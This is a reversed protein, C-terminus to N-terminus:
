ASFSDSVINNGKQNAIRALLIELVFDHIPQVNLQDPIVADYPIIGMQDDKGGHGSYYILIADGKRIRDDTRLDSFANIIALRTAKKDILSTIQNSPVGLCNELYERVSHADAVGGSLPHYSESNKINKINKIGLYNIGILLAFIRM